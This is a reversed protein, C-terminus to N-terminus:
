GLMATDGKSICQLYWLKGNLGDINEEIYYIWWNPVTEIYFSATKGTYSNWNYCYSPRM